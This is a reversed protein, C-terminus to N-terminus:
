NSMRLAQLQGELCPQTGIKGFSVVHQSTQPKGSGFLSVSMKSCKSPSLRILM